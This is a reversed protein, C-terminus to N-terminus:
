MRQKWSKLERHPHDNHVLPVTEVMMYRCERCKGTHIVKEVLPVTMVLMYRCERCKRLNGGHNGRHRGVVGM